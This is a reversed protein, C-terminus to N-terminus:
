GVEQQGEDEDGMRQSVHRLVRSEWDAMLTLLENIIADHTNSYNKHDIGIVKCRQRNSIISRGSGSCTPCVPTLLVNGQCHNCIPKVFEIIAMRVLGDVTSPKVRFKRIKIFLTVIMTLSRVISLLKDENGAFRYYAWDTSPKDLGSLAYAATQWDIVDVSSGQSASHYNIAKPALKSLLRIPHM